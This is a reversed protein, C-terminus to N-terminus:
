AKRSRKAKAKSSRTYGTRQENGEPTNVKGYKVMNYHRERIIQNPTLVTLVMNNRVVARFGDCPYIGQGGLAGVSNAVGKELIENRVHTLDIKKVREIYRVLAHDSVGIRTYKRM